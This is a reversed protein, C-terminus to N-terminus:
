ADINTARLANSEIFDRRPEVEDGMLMMFVKDAEIADEIQVRLLRRVNPDMTTEWLQEPNMEGLGKYRQRGVSNEAQTILWAMAARFDAVKAEKAKEGEGRRVLAEPTLLGNFTTGAKALAEYDAGHVFDANIISYKTNGHFIRSIRLIHKDSRADFEATVEANRLAAKLATASQEADELTDLNLTLGNAIARLAEIDMWNGLREVVANAKVYAAALESLQEGAIAPKGQGPEVVAGDLAVRMLYEDLAGADKLYQEQKGHKVKYLPPQAIYIHGREVLEPMQRFFFTLLLTRIHAGDVDADTMIIIRHYRLKDINFDDAGSKGKPAYEDVSAKGIGTGLATILTLIENSALLKEYRAKEVNLIKGRLPLIAQFKRDRGQKASGGASDGEVIFLETGEASQRSCDSLKGPLRLKRTAAARQVEKDKRRKLRDEAREIIYTVSGGVGVM